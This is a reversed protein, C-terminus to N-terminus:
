VTANNREWEKNLNEIRRKVSMFNSHTFYRGCHPCRRISSQANQREHSGGCYPCIDFIPGRYKIIM